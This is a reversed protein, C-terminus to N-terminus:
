RGSAALELHRTPFAPLVRDIAPIIAQAVATALSDARAAPEELPLVIRVLAEESRGTLAADRLLEWKVLYENSSIRGRGQYWYYVLAHNKDKALSYRRVLYSSKGITISRDSVSTPEWGAGPLCNRPSHITKGETQRDYYGVYVSFALTSDAPNFYERMLYDTMGAVKREDPGIVRDRGKLGQIEAPLTVLSGSLPVARQRDVGLLLMAGAGMLLAPFFSGLRLKM